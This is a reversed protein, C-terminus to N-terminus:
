SATRFFQLQRSQNESLESLYSAAKTSQSIGDVSQALAENIGEINENISVIARSQEDAASAMENNNMSINNVEDAITSLQERTQQNIVSAQEVKEMCGSVSSTMESARSQLSSVLEQISGTSEATRQALVRVEDAVVAFGRGNEGARAAEIAANLALLNTQEAVNEIMNVFASVNETLEQLGNAVNSTKNLECILASSLQVGQQASEVGVSTIDIVSRANQDASQASAAVQTSSAALETIASAILEVQSKQELSNFQLNTMVSALETSSSSVETGVKRLKGVTDSLSEITFDTNRCLEGIENRSSLQTKNFLEGQSVSQIVFQLRSINLKIIHACYYGIAASFLVCIIVAGLLTTQTENILVLSTDSAKNARENALTTLHSVDAHINLGLDLVQKELEYLEDVLSLVNQYEVLPAIIITNVLPSDLQQILGALKDMAGQLRERSRENYSKMLEAFYTQIQTSQNYLEARALRWDNKATQGVEDSTLIREDAKNIETYLWALQSYQEEAQGAIDGVDVMLGQYATFMSELRLVNPELESTFAPSLRATELHQQFQEGFAQSNTYYTDWELKGVLVQNSERRLRWAVREAEQLARSYDVSQSSLQANAHAHNLKDGSLVVAGIFLIISLIVPTLIQYLIPIDRFKYKM